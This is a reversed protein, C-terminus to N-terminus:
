WQYAPVPRLVPNGCNTGSGDDTVATVVLPACSPGVIQTLNNSSSGAYNTTGGYTASIIHSGVILTSTTYVATGSVVSGTGLLTNGETFTVTGTAAVPNVTATFTVSQGAISPNPNSVLITNTDDNLITGTGQSTGLSANTPSSLTVTFTEDAEITTDGNVAVAITQTLTGPAFTLTGSTATYDSPATATGDSTTYGVTVTQSIAYSLTVTFTFITTGSNGELQSVNNITLVPASLIALTHYKGGAIAIPTAGGPLSLAQPTFKDTTTGDGLQGKGNYGWTYLKGDSGIALSHYGGAEITTPTVGSALSVSLPSNRYTTTGDGLEGDENDGWTYLKGDSGIVLSHYGGAKITTPTIGSALSVIEPTTQSTNTGDGLQGDANSGWVYLKGDSGIALSHYGGGAISTPVIGSALTISVPTTQDSTTGNGVQGNNNHGWVYLNGDSGIALSHYWGVAIAVPTVGSALTISVPTSRNTTTGDGLQGYSNDGWGYLNGDSGIALSYSAGAMVAIPTVGSALTISIPSTRSTTTGDGLQGNNNYGWVYLNGDSGLTMSHYDASLKTTANVGAPLNTLVPSTTHNTNGDGLEGDVNYGWAYLPGGTSSATDDNYIVGIGQSTALIANTPSSLTVTFTESPEVVTDGTVAVTITQTLTGSAFTLTGSAATYDSGATATGDSTAYNVTVTQNSASSLTVTFSFATTGSNGETKTVNNISLTVSASLAMTHYASTVITTPMYGSPSDAVVRNAPSCCGIWLALLGLLLSSKLVLNHPFGPLPQM